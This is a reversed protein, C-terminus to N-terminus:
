INKRGNVSTFHHLIIVKQKEATLRIVTEIENKRVFKLVKVHKLMYIHVILSHNLDSQIDKCLSVYLPIIKTYCFLEKM